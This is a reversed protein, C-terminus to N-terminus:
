NRHATTPRDSTHIVVLRTQGDQGIEQKAFQFPQAEDDIDSGAEASRRRATRKSPAAQTEGDREATWAGPALPAASGIAIPKPKAPTLPVSTPERRTPELGTTTPEPADGIPDAGDATPVASQLLPVSHSRRHTEAGSGGNPAQEQPAVAASHAKSDYGLVANGVISLEESMAQALSSLRETWYRSTTPSPLQGDSTWGPTTAGSSVVDRLHSGGASNPSHTLHHKLHTFADDRPPSTAVVVCEHASQAVLPRSRIHSSTSVARQKGLAPRVLAAQTPMAKGAMNSYSGIPSSFASTVRRPEISHSARRFASVGTSPRESASAHQSSMHRWMVPQAPRSSLPISLGLSPPSAYPSSPEASRKGSREENRSLSRAFGASERIFAANGGLSRSSTEGDSTVGYQQTRERTRRFPPLAIPVAVGDEDVASGRRSAPSLARQNQWSARRSSTASGGESLWGQLLSARPSVYGDSDPETPTPPASEEFADPLFCMPHSFSDKPKLKRGSRGSPGARPSTQTSEPLRSRQSPSRQTAVTGNMASPSTMRRQTEVRGVADSHDGPRTEVASEVLGTERVEEIEELSSSSAERDLLSTQGESKQSTSEALSQIDSQNSLSAQDDDDEESSDDEEDESYGSGESSMDQDREEWKAAQSSMSTVRDPAPSRIPDTGRIGRLRQPYALKHPAPSASLKTKSKRMAHAPSLRAAREPKACAAFALHKRSSEGAAHAQANEAGDCTTNAKSAHDTNSSPSVPHDPKRSTPSISRLRPPSRKPKPAPDVFTLKRSSGSPVHQHQAANGDQPAANNFIPVISPPEKTPQSLEIDSLKQGNDESAVTPSTGSSSGRSISRLAWSSRTSATEEGASSMSQQRSRGLVGTRSHQELAHASLSNAERAAAREAARELVDAHEQIVLSRKRPTQGAHTPHDSVASEPAVTSAKIGNERGIANPEPHASPNSFDDKHPEVFHLRPRPAPNPAVADKLVGASGAHTDELEARRLIGLNTTSLSRPPQGSAMAYSLLSKKTAEGLQIRDSSAEDLSVRSRPSVLREEKAPEPSITSSPLNRKQFNLPSPQSPQQEHPSDSPTQRLGSRSAHPHEISAGEIKDAKGNVKSAARLASPRGPPTAFTITPM